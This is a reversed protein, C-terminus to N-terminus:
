QRTLDELRDLSASAAPPLPEEPNSYLAKLTATLSLIVGLTLQAWALRFEAWSLSGDGFLGPSLGSALSGAVAWLSYLLVKRRHPTM